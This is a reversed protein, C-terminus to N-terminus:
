YKRIPKKREEIKSGSEQIAAQKGNPLKETLNLFRVDWLVTLYDQLRVYMAFSGFYFSTM